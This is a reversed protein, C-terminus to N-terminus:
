PQPSQTVTQGTSAVVIILLCFHFRPVIVISKPIRDSGRHEALLAQGGGSFLYLGDDGKQADFRARVDEIETTAHAPM